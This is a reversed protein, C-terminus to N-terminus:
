PKHRQTYIYDLHADALVRRKLCEEDGTGCEEIGMLENFSNIPDLDILSNESTNISEDDSKEGPKIHLFSASAQSFLAIISIILFILCVSCRFNHKMAKSNLPTSYSHYTM